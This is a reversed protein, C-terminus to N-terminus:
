FPKIGKEIMSSRKEARYGMNSNQENGGLGKKIVAVEDRKVFLIDGRKTVDMMIGVNTTLWDAPLFFHRAYQDLSTTEPGVSCIWNDSHLFLLRHTSPSGILTEVQDSLHHYKPVPVATEANSKFDSTQWLYLRKKAHVNMGESFATAIIAGNFCSHISRISLEPLISGQLLIGEDGTLKNLAQWEYVIAKNSFILILQDQRVPHCAWQYSGRNAWTLTKAIATEGESFSWLTDTTASCILLRTLGKNCLIQDVAVDANYEFIPKSVEWSLPRATLNHALIASFSDISIITQTENDFHLAVIAVGYSHSFLTLSQRGTKMEYLGVSGDEKGCFFVEDNEHCTLSTIMVVDNEPELDVENALTSVSVTDSTEEGAEQRLLVTPDWVRCQSGRVDLLRHNDGSFALGQIGHESSNIRYLLKLTEFDFLQITGSPDGTALTRGNSTRALIHAYAVTTEKVLGEFTDFLVLDGDGYSAALLSANMDIGFILSRVGPCARTTGASTTPSRAGSEKSYTNCLSDSEIDWILIDQGRYVIALLNPEECFAATVPRRFLHAPQGQLCQTWDSSDRLTGDYVEWIMLRNNRLAGLLLSDEDILVLTMCQQPAAFTWLLDWSSANWVRIIKSGSSALIDRVTGFLLLRVPEQHNLLVVEQCTTASHVAIKGSNMGIAFYLNSCALTLFQEHPSFITSLCDDWSVASLGVVSLGRASTGFQKRLLTNAPCFPPILNYISSPSNTLHRGFKTVLRVLDSAWSDLLAVEKGFPSMHASRRQLFHDLAKGTQNLRYLFSNESIYHIWSLINPSSLFKALSFLLDDDTSSVHSIHEYFSECAYSQFPSREKATRKSSLKRNGPGKMENSMLYQLCVLTLRKHGEREDIAFESALHKKLLFDRATQHIIQVRSQADVYVLEGCNSTISREVSDITDKIDIQLAHYLEFTKLPRASCVTWTLIAKTLSKGYTIRSMSDLIRAYLDNMDSPVEDLVQRVEASTHVHRLEQLILNVWLFCGESKRLIERVIRHRGAEDASPIQDMNAELYLAIDSITDDNLIEESIVPSRHLALQRHSEFQNRSTLFIRISSVEVIKLLLPILETSSKCEDVADVVWYQKQDFKQKLITELFLKRWIMRYDAKDLQENKRCVKTINQLVAAHGSAMQWAMNLLFSSITWKEKNGFNFFYFSCQRNLDKLHAIVKGSLITKGTAPKASLWYMQAKTSDLWVQFSTKQFLWKCSGSMRLSDIGIFDDEPADIAGLYENLLQRQDNSMQINASTDRHRFNDISSALANRITRYNPDNQDSFKCVERHNANLYATRENSYGLTALDKDVVLSKGIGYSTPLTEYFSYLQLDQCYHPFEENISQTALSNRHLDNVFPRAGSSVQLIKSLLQALDAGRHPTALFMITSVRDALSSYEQKQKAIIYARKIVLGGM